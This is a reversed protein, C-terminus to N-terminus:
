PSPIPSRYLWSCPFPFSTPPSFLHFFIPLPFVNLLPFFHSSLPLPIFLLLFFAPFPFPLHLLLFFYPFHPSKLQLVLFGRFTTPPRSLLFPSPSKPGRHLSLELHQSWRQKFRVWWQLQWQVPSQALHETWVSLFISPLCSFATSSYLLALLSCAGMGKEVMLWMLSRRWFNKEGPKKESATLVAGPFSSVIIPQFYTYM